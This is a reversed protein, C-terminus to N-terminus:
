DWNTSLTNTWFLGWRIKLAIRIFQLLRRLCMGTHWWHRSGTHKVTSGRSPSVLAGVHEGGLPALRALVCHPVCVCLCVCVFHQHWGPCKLVLQRPCRGPLSVPLCWIRSRGKPTGVKRSVLVPLGRKEGRPPIKACEVLTLRAKSLM